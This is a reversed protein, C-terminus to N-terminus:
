EGWVPIARNAAGRIVSGDVEVSSEAIELQPWECVFRVPGDPPLPWVWYTEHSRREGGGGGSPTMMIETRPDPGDDDASAALGYATGSIMGGLSTTRRGDSFEIGFRVLDPPPESEPEAERDLPDFRNGVRMRERTLLELDFEFGTPFAVLRTVFVAARDNRAVILELPVVGGVVDEPAQLWEPAPPGEEDDTERRPMRVEDFFGVRRTYEPAANGAGPRVSIRGAAAGTLFRVM